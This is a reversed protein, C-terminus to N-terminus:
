GVAGLLPHVLSPIGPMMREHDTVRLRGDHPRATELLRVGGISANLETIPNALMVSAVPLRCAGGVEDDAVGEVVQSEVAHLDQDRHLVPSTLSDRFPESGTEFGRERLADVNSATPM